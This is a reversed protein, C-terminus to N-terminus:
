ATRAESPAGTVEAVLEHAAALAQEITSTSGDAWTQTFPKDGIAARRQWSNNTSRANSRM